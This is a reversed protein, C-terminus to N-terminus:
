SRFRPDRHELFARAGEEPEGLGFLLRFAALELELAGVGSASSRLLDRAATLAARSNGGIGPFSEEERLVAHVLGRKLAVPATVAGSELLAAALAGRGARGAAWLVGASPLEGGSPLLLRVGQRAIVLDCCLAVELAPPGVDGRIDAMTVARVRTWPELVRWAPSSGSSSPGFVVTMAGPTAAGECLRQLQAEVPEGPNWTEVKVPATYRPGDVVCFGEERRERCDPFVGFRYRNM